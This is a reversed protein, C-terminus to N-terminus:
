IEDSMSADNVSEMYDIKERKEKNGKNIKEYYKRRHEKLSDKNAGGKFDADRNQVPDYEWGCEECIDYLEKVMGTKCCPCLIKKNNEMKRMKFKDM